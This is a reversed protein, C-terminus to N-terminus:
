TSSAPESSGHILVIASESNHGLGPAGREAGGWRGSRDWAADFPPPQLNAAWQKRRAVAPGPTPGVRKLQGDRNGADAPRQFAARAM